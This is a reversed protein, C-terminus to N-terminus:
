KELLKYPDRCILKDTRRIHCNDGRLVQKLDDFAGGGECMGEFIGVVGKSNM